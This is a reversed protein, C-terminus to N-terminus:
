DDALPGTLVSAAHLRASGYLLFRLRVQQTAPPTTDSRWEMVSDGGDANIPQCSAADRDPLARGTQDIAEVAVWDRGHFTQTM